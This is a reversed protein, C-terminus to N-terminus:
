DLLKALAEGAADWADWCASAETATDWGFLAARDLAANYRVRWANMEARVVNAAHQRMVLAM